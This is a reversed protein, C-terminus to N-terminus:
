TVGSFVISCAFEGKQVAKFKDVELQLKNQIEEAMSKVVRDINLVSVRSYSPTVISNSLSHSFVGTSSDVIITETFNLLNTRRM